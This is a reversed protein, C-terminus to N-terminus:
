RENQSIGTLDIVNQPILVTYRNDNSPLLYTTGDLVRKLTIAHDNSKNLRRLDTWRTGRFILQKKRESLVLELATMSNPASLPVFTGEKWRSELLLNLDEMAKNVNNLRALCEARTLYIEDTAIGNFLNYPSQTYNGKFIFNGDGNDMFFLQKRLDFDNFSDYLISDIYAIGWANVPADTKTHFMVEENYLLFPGSSNIDLDNHNILASHLNLCSDAYLKAQQFDNMTLYVRSLMGFAAPLIPRTKYTGTTPLLRASERLDSIIQQYTENLTSRVSKKNFDSTLRLPIGLDVSASNADYAPAFIQALLYFSHARFFLAAGKIQNWKEQQGSTSIKQLHELVTNACLVTRYQSNWDENDQLEADWIFGNKNLEDLSNWDANTLFYEDTSVNTVIAATNLGTYDLLYQLDDLNNPTSLRIDPRLELYKKCSITTLNIMFLISVILTLNKKM